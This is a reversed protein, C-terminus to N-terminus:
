KTNRFNAIGARIAIGPVFGSSRSLATASSSARGLDAAAAHAPPFFPYLPTPRSSPVSWEAGARFRGRLFRRDVDTATAVVTEPNAPRNCPTAAAAQLVPQTGVYTQCPSGDEDHHKSADSDGLPPLDHVSLLNSYIHIDKDGGVPITLGGCCPQIVTVLWFAIWAVILWRGIRRLNRPQRSVEKDDKRFVLKM